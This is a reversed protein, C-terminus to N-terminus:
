NATIEVSTEAEKHNGASNKRTDDSDAQIQCPWKGSDSSSRWVGFGLPQSAAVVPEAMIRQCASRLAAMAVALSNRPRVSPRVPHVFM